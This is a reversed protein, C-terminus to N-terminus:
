INKVERGHDTRVLHGIYELGKKNTDAVTDLDTCLERLEQNTGMRRISQKGV